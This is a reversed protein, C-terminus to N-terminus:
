HDQSRALSILPVSYFSVLFLLYDIPRASYCPMTGEKTMLLLSPGSQHRRVSRSHTQSAILCMRRTTWSAVCDCTLIEWAPQDHRHFSTSGPSGGAMSWNHQSLARMETQQSSDLHLTAIVVHRLALFSPCHLATPYLRWIMQEVDLKTASSILTTPGIRM